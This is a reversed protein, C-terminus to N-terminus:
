GIILAAREIPVQKPSQDSNNVVRKERIIAERHM